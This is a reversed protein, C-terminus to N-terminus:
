NSLICFSVGFKRNKMVSRQSSVVATVIYLLIKQCTPMATVANTGCSYFYPLCYQSFIKAVVFATPMSAIRSNPLRSDAM